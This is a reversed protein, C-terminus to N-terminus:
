SVKTSPCLWVKLETGILEAFVHAIWTNWVPLCSFEQKLVKSHFAGDRHTKGIGSAKGARVAENHVTMTVTVTM